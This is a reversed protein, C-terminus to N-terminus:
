TSDFASRSVAVLVVTLLLIGVAHKMTETETGAKPQRQKL